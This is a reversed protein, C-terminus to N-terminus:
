VRRAKERSTGIIRAGHCSHEDLAFYRLVTAVSLDSDSPGSARGFQGQKVKPQPLQQNEDGDSANKQGRNGRRV